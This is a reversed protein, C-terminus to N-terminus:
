LVDDLMSGLGSKKSAPGVHSGDSPDTQLGCESELVGSEDEIKQSCWRQFTWGGDLLYRKFRRHMEEPVIVTM